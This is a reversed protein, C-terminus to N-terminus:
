FLSDIKKDRERAKIMNEIEEQKQSNIGKTYLEGNQKEYFQVGEGIYLYDIDKIGYKLGFKDLQNILGDSVKRYYLIDVYFLLCSDLDELFIQNIGRIYLSAQKQVFMYFSNLYANIYKCGTAQETFRNILFLFVKKHDQFMVTSDKNEDYDNILNLALLNKIVQPYFKHIEVSKVNELLQNRYEENAKVNTYYPSDSELKIDLYNRNIKTYSDEPIHDVLKDTVYKIAKDLTHGSPVHALNIDDNDYLEQILQDIM